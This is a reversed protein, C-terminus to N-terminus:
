VHDVAFSLLAVPRSVQRLLRALHDRERGLHELRSIHLGLEARLDAVTAQHAEREEALKRRWQSGTREM